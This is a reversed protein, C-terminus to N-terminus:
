SLRRGRSTPTNSPSTPSWSTSGGDPFPLAEARVGGQFGVEPHRMVASPRNHIDTALIRLGRRAEAAWVSVQGSGCGVELLRAGLRARGFVDRWFGELAQGAGYGVPCCFTPDSGVRDDWVSSGDPGSAAM